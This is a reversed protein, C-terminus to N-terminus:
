RKLEAIYPLNRYLENWDLGYGVLYKESEIKFGWFDPILRTKPTPKWLLTAFLIKRAGRLKFYDGLLELARGTRVLVDIYLVVKGTIPLSIDRKIVIEREEESYPIKSFQVYDISLKMPMRLTLDVAFPIGTKLPVVISLDDIPYERFYEMLKSAIEDVKSKLEEEPIIVKLNDPLSNM